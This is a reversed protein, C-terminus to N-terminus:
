GNFKFIYDRSYYNDFTVLAEGVKRLFITTSEHVFNITPVSLSNFSSYSLTFEKKVNEQLEQGNARLQDAFFTGDEKFEFNEEGYKTLLSYRGILSNADSEKIYTDTFNLGNDEKVGKYEAITGLSDMIFTRNIAGQSITLNIYNAFTKQEFVLDIRYDYTKGNLTAKENEFVLEPQIKTTFSGDFKALSEEPLFVKEDTESELIFAGLADDELHFKFTQNQDEFQIFVSDSLVDYELDVPKTTDNYTFQLNEDIVIKEKQQFGKNVHTGVFLSTNLEKNVLYYNVGDLQLRIVYNDATDDKFGFITYTKEDITVEIAKRKERLVYEFSAEKGNIVAKKNEIDISAKFESSTFEGAIYKENGDFAYDVLKDGVIESIGFSTARFKRVTDGSTLTYLAGKEDSSIAITYEKDDLTTTNKTADYIFNLNGNEGFYSINFPAEGLIFNSSVEDAAQLFKKDDKTGLLYSGILTDDAYDYQDITKVLKGEIERFGSNFYYTNLNNYKNNLFSFTSYYLQRDFDFEGGIFISTYDPNYNTEGYIPLFYSGAFEDITPMFSGVEEYGNEGKTELVPKKVYLDSLYLRYLNDKGFYVVKGNNVKLDEDKIENIPLDFNLEKGKLAIRSNSVTLVGEGGNFTGKLVGLEDDTPTIYSNFRAEINTDKLLEFTYTDEKELVNGSNKDYFGIFYNTDGTATAKLTISTGEEVNGKEVTSTVNGKTSDFSYEFSYLVSAKSFKVEYSTNQNLKFTFLSNSSVLADSTSDYYGVFEYGSLATSTLTIETGEEHEGKAVSSTVNGMTTDFTFDFTYKPPSSQGCSTALLSFLTLALIKKKM